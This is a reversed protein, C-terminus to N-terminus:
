FQALYQRLERYRAVSESRGDVGARGFFFLSALRKFQRRWHVSFYWLSCSAAIYAICAGAGSWSAPFVFKQLVWYQATFVVALVVPSIIFRVSMRETEDTAIFDTLTALFFEPLSNNPLDVLFFPFGLLLYVGRLVRRRAGLQKWVQRYGWAPVPIRHDKCAEDFARLRHELGKWFEQNSRQRYFIQAADWKSRYLGITVLKKGLALTGESEFHPSISIMERTLDEMLKRVAQEEDAEYAARYEAVVFPKGYRIWLGSGVKTRSGYELGVPIIRLGLSFGNAEEASFALKAVGPKLPLTLGPNALSVGEPYIAVPWGKRLAEIAAQFTTRNQAARQEKTLKTEGTDMSRALPLGGCYQVFSKIPFKFLTSKGLFKPTVPAEFGAPIVDCLFNSHTSAWLFPGELSPKNTRRVPAYALYTFVFYFFNRIFPYTLRQALTADAPLRTKTLPWNLM